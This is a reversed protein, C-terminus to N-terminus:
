AQLLRDVHAAARGGLYLEHRRTLIDRAHRQRDEFRAQLEGMALLTDSEVSGASMMEKAFERLAAAQVEGDQFDGLVEQLERFDSIVDNYAKPNCLPRFVELLYRMEKCTKRLSHVQESPSDPTIAKARKTAKRFVRRLRETALQAATERHSSPASMVAGLDARWAGSLKVFRPSRLARALTRHAAARRLGVHAGFADLGGPRSVLQAMDDIGLLYVDLDRTPSTVDGLWRFEKGMRDALGDPLVDGLLKLLSRTRRVAVRFKHLYETDIDAVIGEVNAEMEALFGLLADAVALDAAQSRQMGFRETADPGLGPMAAWLVDSLTDHTASLPTGKTLLRLVREADATYGRLPDVQVRVPLRRKLPSLVSGQRWRVRAVTKADNNLLAFSSSRDQSTAFPLLARVWIAERILDRVPGAPIGSILAPWDIPGVLQEAQSGGRQVVLHHSRPVFALDIGARRLRWDATDLHTIVEATVGIDRVTYSDGLARRLVALNTLPKGDDDLLKTSTTLVTSKPGVPRPM